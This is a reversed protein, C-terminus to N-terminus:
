DDAGIEVFFVDKNDSRYTKSCYGRTRKLITCDFLEHLDCNSCRYGYLNEVTEYKRSGLKFVEGVIREM